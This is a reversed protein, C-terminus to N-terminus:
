ALKQACGNRYTLVGHDQYLVANAYAWHRCGVTLRPKSWLMLLTCQYVVEGSAAAVSVLSAHVVIFNALLHAFGGATLSVARCVAL